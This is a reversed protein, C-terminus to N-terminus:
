KQFINESCLSDWTKREKQSCPAGSDEREWQKWHSIQQRDREKSRPVYRRKIGRDERSINEKDSTRLLNIIVHKPVTKREHRKPM